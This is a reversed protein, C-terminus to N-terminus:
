GNQTAKYTINEASSWRNQLSTVALWGRRAALGIASALDPAGLREIASDLAASVTAVTLGSEEAIDLPALGALRRGLVYRERLSLGCSTEVDGSRERLALAQAAYLQAYGRVRATEDASLPREPPRLMVRLGSEGAEVMITSAGARLLDPSDGLIPQVADGQGSLCFHGGIHHEALADAFLNVLAESSSAMFIETRLRHTAPRMPNLATSPRQAM